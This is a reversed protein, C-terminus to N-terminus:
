HMIPFVPFLLNDRFRVPTSLPKKAASEVTIISGQKHRDKRLPQQSHSVHWTGKASIKLDVETWLPWLALLAKWAEEWVKRMTILM